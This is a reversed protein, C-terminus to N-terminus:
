DAPYTLAQLERQLERATTRIESGREVFAIVLWLVLLPTAVGSLAAGLEHPLLSDLNAWGIQTQVYWGALALWVVSVIAGGVFIASRTRRRVEDASPAAAVDVAPAHPETEVLRLAPTRPGTTEM